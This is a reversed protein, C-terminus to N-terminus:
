FVFSDLQEQNIINMSLLQESINLIEDYLGDHGAKTELILLELIKILSPISNCSHNDLKDEILGRGYIKEKDGLILKITKYRSSKKDGKGIDYRIDLLFRKIKNGDEEMDSYTVNPNTLTSKFGDPFEYLNDKVIFSKEQYTIKVGNIEFEGIDLNGFLLKLQPNSQITMINVIHATDNDVIIGPRDRAEELAENSKMLVENSKMLAEDFQSGAQQIM